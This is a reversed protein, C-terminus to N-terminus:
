EGELWANVFFIVYVARMRVQPHAITIEDVAKLLLIPNPHPHKKNVTYNQQLTSHHM